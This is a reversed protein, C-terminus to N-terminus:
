VNGDLAGEVAARQIDEDSLPVAGPPAQVRRALLEDVTLKREKADTTEGEARLAILEVRKGLLPRLAPIARATAEDVTTQVKITNMTDEALEGWDADLEGEERQRDRWYRFNGIPGLTSSGPRVRGGLAPCGRTVEIHAVRPLAHTAGASSRSLHVLDDNPNRALYLYSRRGMSSTSPRRMARCPCIRPLGSLGSADIHRLTRRSLFVFATIGIMAPSAAVWAPLPVPDDLERQCVARNKAPVAVRISM